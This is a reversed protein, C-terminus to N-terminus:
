HQSAPGQITLTLAATTSTAASANVTVMVNPSTFADGQNDSLSFNASYVLISASVSQPALVTFTEGTADKSALKAPMPLGNTPKVAILIDNMTPNNAILGTPDNVRINRASGIQAVLSLGTVSGGSAVKVTTAKASWFCPNLLAMSAQEACLLYTGAPLGTLTFSGDNATLANFVPPFHGNSRSGGQLYASVSAGPVVAGTTSALIGSVTGTTQASLAAALGCIIILLLKM